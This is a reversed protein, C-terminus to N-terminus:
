GASTDKEGALLAKGEQTLSLQHNKNRRVLDKAELLLLDAEFVYKPTDTDTNKLFSCLEDVTIGPHQPRESPLKKWFPLSQFHELAAEHQPLKPAVLKELVELIKLRRPTKPSTAQEYTDAGINLNSKTTEKAGFQVQNTTPSAIPNAPAISAFRTAPLQSTQM